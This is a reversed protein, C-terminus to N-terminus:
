VSNKTPAATSDLPRGRRNTAYCPRRVVFTSGGRTLDTWRLILLASVPKHFLQCDELQDGCARFPPHFPTDPEDFKEAMVYTSNDRDIGIEAWQHQGHDVLFIIAVIIVGMVTATLIGMVIYRLRYDYRHDKEGWPTRTHTPCQSNDIM